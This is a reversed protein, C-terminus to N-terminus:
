QNRNVSLNGDRDVLLIGYIVGLQVMQETLRDEYHIQRGRELVEELPLPGYRRIINMVRCLPHRTKPRIVTM